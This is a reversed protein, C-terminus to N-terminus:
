GVQDGTPLLGLLEEGRGEAEMRDLYAQIDSPDVPADPGHIERIQIFSLFFSYFFNSSSSSM